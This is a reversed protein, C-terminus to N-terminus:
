RMARNSPIYMFLQEEMEWKITRELQSLLELLGRVTLGSKDVFIIHDVCKVSTLLRIQRCSQKIADLVEFPASGPQHSNPAIEDGKAGLVGLNKKAIALSRGINVYTEASFKQM